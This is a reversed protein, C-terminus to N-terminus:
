FSALELITSKVDPVVQHTLLSYNDIAQIQMQCMIHFCSWMRLVVPLVYHIASDNANCQAAAVPLM